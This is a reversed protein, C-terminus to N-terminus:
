DDALDGASKSREAPDRAFCDLVLADIEPPAVERM